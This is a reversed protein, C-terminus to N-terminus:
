KKSHHCTRTASTIGPFDVRTKIDLMEHEVTKTPNKLMLKDLTSMEELGSLMVKDGHLEISLYISSM